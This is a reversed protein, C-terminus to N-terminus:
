LFKIVAEDNTGNNRGIISLAGASADTQITLPSSINGTTGIGVNASNTNYIDNGNAAWYGGGPIASGLLKVVDGSANTGLLFTATGVNNAANYANFKIAGAASISMRETINDGPNTKFVLNGQLAGGNNIVNGSIESLIDTSALADGVAFSM